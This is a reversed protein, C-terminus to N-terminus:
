QYYAWNFLIGLLDQWTIASTATVSTDSIQTITKEGFAPTFVTESDTEENTATITMATTDVTVLNAEFWLEGIREELDALSWVLDEITIEFLPNGWPDDLRANFTATDISLNLDDM